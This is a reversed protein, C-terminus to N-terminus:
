DAFFVRAGPIQPMDARIKTRLDKVEDDSLDERSMTLVSHAENEEFVSYVSKILFKDRNAQLYKEVVNVAKEADSKYAFESFEYQMFLRKNQAGAFIAVPLIGTFPPTLGVVLGLIVILLTWARPKLPCGLSQRCKRG